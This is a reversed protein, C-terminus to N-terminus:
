KQAELYAVLDRIQTDTLQLNPMHNGPKVAFPNKIWKTLNEPTNDLVGAAITDRSGFHTLNPGVKVSAATETVAHCSACTMQQFLMAGQAADGGNPTIAAQAQQRQWADFDAQSQVIVRIRMWAHEAGCYEACAGLFTGTQTPEVWLWNTHGPIMDMKRGLQPVWFDHIVDGGELQLLMRKGVPLHVENATVIGAAPYQIGWWWQYGTVILDPPHDGPGPSVAAMTKITFGLIVVLLVAPAITWAIELRPRGFEQYPEETGGRHRYRVMIYLVLGTVLAFIVAGVILIGVFLNSIDLEQPSIPNFPTGQMADGEHRVVALLTIQRRSTERS